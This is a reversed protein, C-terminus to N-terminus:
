VDDGVGAGLTEAGVTSGLSVGVGLVTVGDGSGLTVM